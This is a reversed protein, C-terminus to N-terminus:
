GAEKQKDELKSGIEPIERTLRENIEELEAVRKSLLTNLSELTQITKLQANYATRAAETDQFVPNKGTLKPDKGGKLHVSPHVNLHVNQGKNEGDELINPHVNSLDLFMLQEFTVSFHGLIKALVDAKPLNAGTEYNAYTSRTLGLAAATEQQKEQLKERLFVLNIKFLESM